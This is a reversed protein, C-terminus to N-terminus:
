DPSPRTRRLKKNKVLQPYDNLDMHYGWMNSLEQEPCLCSVQELITKRMRECSCSLNGKAAIAMASVPATLVTSTLMGATRPASKAVAPNGPTQLRDECLEM